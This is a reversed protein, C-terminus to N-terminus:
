KLMKKIDGNLDKPKYYRRDLPLKTLATMADLAKSGNYLAM